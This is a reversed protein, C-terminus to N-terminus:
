TKMHDHNNEVRNQLNCICNQHMYYSCPKSYESKSTTDSQTIKYAGKQQMQGFRIISPHKIKQRKEVRMHLWKTCNTVIEYEMVYCSFYNSIFCKAFSAVKDNDHLMGLM